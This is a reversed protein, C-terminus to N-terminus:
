YLIYTILFYIYGYLYRFYIHTYYLYSFYISYMCLKEKTKKNFFLHQFIGIEVKSQSGELDFVM